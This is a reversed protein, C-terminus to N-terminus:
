RALLSDKVTALSDAGVKLSDASVATSDRYYFISDPVLPVIRFWADSLTDREVRGWGLFIGDKSFPQLITELKKGQMNLYRNRWEEKRIEKEVLLSRATLLDSTKSLLKAFREPDRLYVDVTYLYDDTDYGYKQLVGEYVLLTDAERRLEYDERIFQDAMYMDAYIEILEDRPIRRPGQCSVALLLTTCALLLLRRM